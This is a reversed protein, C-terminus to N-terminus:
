LLVLFQVICTEVLNIIGWYCYTAVTCVAGNCNSYTLVKPKYKAWASVGLYSAGCAVVVDGKGRVGAKALM